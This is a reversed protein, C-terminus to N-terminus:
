DDVYGVNFCFDDWVEQKIDVYARFSSEPKIVLKISGDTVLNGCKFIALKMTCRRGNRCLEKFDRHESACRNHVFRYSMETYIEKRYQYGLEFEFYITLVEIINYRNEDTIRKFLKLSQNLDLDIDHVISGSNQGEIVQALFEKIRSRTPHPAQILLLNKPQNITVDCHYSGTSLRTDLSLRVLKKNEVHNVKTIKALSNTTNKMESELVNNIQAPSKSLYAKYLQVSYAM